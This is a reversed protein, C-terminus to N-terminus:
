FGVNLGALYRRGPSPYGAVETYRRDLVNTVRVFPSLHEFLRPATAVVDVRFYSADTVRAFTVADVDARQGVFLGTLEASGGDGFTTGVSASARNKPRRLLELGTDLDVADLWTWSARAFLGPRITFRFALETGTMRARGVNLNKQSAFDYQILDRVSNRFVSLEVGVSTSPTWDAGGELSESREPQLDPNGSFPYYLEGTTPARFAGGGAARLKLAPLVRWSVTLRPSVASGFASNDDRRIGGTVDLKGDALTLRDEVFLAWTRTSLNDLEVGYADDNTVLTREWEGGASIRNSGATTTVLLRGGARRADTSSYTFGYADDPDVLGPRDNAYRFDAQLATSGSIAWTVPVAWTTTNTTTERRPTVDPGSFPIGTTSYDHRFVAGIKLGPAVAFDLAASANTVSFASNPLDGETSAKRFGATFGVPGAAWSATATGERASLNGAGLTANGELQGNRTGDPARKTFIQVVGGIAESGYLASFPGRVIEVREVNVTSVASLDAGGFYPSNVKVGDVLLLFQNSNTGRLFLSAVGGPGGSEAVDLGPVSRLLELLTTAKSRAIEEAGIVTAAVGLSSAPVAVAEASVVVDATVPPGMPAPVPEGASLVGAPSSVTLAAFFPLVRLVIPISRVSFM